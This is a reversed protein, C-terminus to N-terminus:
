MTILKRKFVIFATTANEIFPTCAPLYQAKLVLFRLATNKHSSHGIGM